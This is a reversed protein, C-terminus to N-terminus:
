INYKGTNNFILRTHYSGNLAVLFVGVVSVGNVVPCVNNIVSFFYM